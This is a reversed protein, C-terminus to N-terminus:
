HAPCRSPTRNTRGGHETCIHLEEYVCKIIVYHIMPFRSLFCPLSSASLASNHAQRVDDVYVLRYITVELLAFDLMKVPSCLQYQSGDLRQLKQLQKSSQPDNM